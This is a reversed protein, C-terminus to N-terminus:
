SVVPGGDNEGTDRGPYALAFDNGPMHPFGQFNLGNGFKERCTGYRKDCGAQLRVATGTVPVEALPLLLDVIREDTDERDGVIEVSRGAGNGDLVTLKGGSFWSPGYGGLGSVRIRGAESGNAVVGEGSFAPDSVDVTCRQDGLDADCLRSFVRGRAQDLHHALSRLEAQFSAGARRVEGIEAKRLLLFHEPTSWDVRTVTVSAGDWLGADLDEASIADSSLFGTAEASGAAFGPGSTAAGTELGQGPEHSVGDLLIARDHDTFGFVAGDKRTVTWCTALTTTEGALRAALGEPITKM